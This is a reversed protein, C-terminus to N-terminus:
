QLEYVMETELSAIQPDVEKALYDKHATIVETEENFFGTIVPIKGDRKAKKLLFALNNINSYKNKRMWERIAEVSLYAIVTGALILGAVIAGITFPDFIAQSVVVSCFFMGLALLLKM